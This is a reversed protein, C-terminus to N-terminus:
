RYAEFRTEDLSPLEGTVAAFTFALMILAMGAAFFGLFPEEIAVRTGDNTVVEYDFAGIAVLGWLIIATAGGLREDLRRSIAVYSSALAAIFLLHFTMALM